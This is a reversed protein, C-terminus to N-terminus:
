KNYPEGRIITLARYLQEVVILRALDHPFTMRSLSLVDHAAELLRCSVGLPGGVAMWLDSVAASILKEMLKSLGTSDMERGRQDWVILQGHRGALKLIRESERERVLQEGFASTIKEAKIYHIEVPCYHRLRELYRDIASEIDGFATKGVFILHVRM